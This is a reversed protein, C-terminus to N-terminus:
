IRFELLVILKAWLLVPVGGEPSTQAGKARAVTEVTSWGRSHRVGDWEDDRM